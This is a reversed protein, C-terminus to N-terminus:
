DLFQKREESINFTLIQSGKNLMKEQSFTAMM